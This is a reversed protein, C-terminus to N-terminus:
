MYRTPDKELPFKTIEDRILLTNPMQIVDEKVIGWSLTVQLCILCCCIM